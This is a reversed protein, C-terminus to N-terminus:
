DNSTNKVKEWSQPFQSNQPSKHIYHRPLLQPRRWHQETSNSVPSAKETNHELCTLLCPHATSGLGLELVHTEPKFDWKIVERISKNGSIWMNQM